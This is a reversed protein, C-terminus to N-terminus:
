NRRNPRTGIQRDSRRPLQYRAFILLVVFMVVFYWPFWEVSSRFVTEELAQAPIGEQRVATSRRLVALLGSYLLGIGGYGLNYSLGRFSLVTARQHSPTIQNLYHSVFFGTMMMAGSLLMAPLVGAYPFFFRMGILGTLTMASLLFLNNAPSQRRSLWLALRPVFLGMMAMASGILGFSAEPLQIIRYYQSNLTLLMRIVHDFLLGAAIITLALPTKLIWRGAEFTIRFAKIVSRSCGKWDLCIPEGSEDIEKMGLTTILTCIAMVLTLYLPFRMTIEQTLEIRLGVAGAAAQMLRPDYVAAGLTMAVIYAASQTRMQKELVGGWQDEGGQAKLSDFALAEDAGSAAAEATGSLVRNVLFVAFVLQVNGMPLFCILAIEVVMLCGATVLLNRRGITDALAGSPVELLVITAAWAVNLLAFQELNLGFDLFLITFVPYYFRSNFFVRFAIFRQVNGTIPPSKRRAIDTDLSM